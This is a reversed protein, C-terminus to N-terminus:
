GCLVLAQIHELEISGKSRNAEGLSRSCKLCSM